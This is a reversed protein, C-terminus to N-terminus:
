GTPNERAIEPLLAGCRVCHLVLKQQQTFHLPVVFKEGCPCNIRLASRAGCSSCFTAVSGPKGCAVCRTNGTENCGVQRATTVAEELPIVLSAASDIFKALCSEWEPLLDENVEVSGAARRVMDVMQDHRKGLEKIPKRLRALAQIEPTGAAGGAAEQLMQAMCDAANGRDMIRDGEEVLRHAMASIRAKLGAVRETEFETRAATWKEFTVTVFGTVFVASALFIVDRFACLYVGSVVLGLTFLALPLMRTVAFRWNTFRAVHLVLFPLALVASLATGSSAPMDERFSIVSFIVFYLSYNLALLLFHSFHFRCLLGPKELEALYWVGLGFLMVALGMLQFLSVVRGMPSQASPIEILIPSTHGVRNMVWHLESGSRSTPQLATDPIVIEGEGMATVSVSLSALQEARPLWIAFRDRGLATYSFDVVAPVPPLVLDISTGIKYTTNEQSNPFGPATMRVRVDRLDARGMPVPIQFFTSGSAESTSHLEARGSARVETRTFIDMGVREFRYIVQFDAKYDDIMPALGIPKPLDLPAEAIPEEKITRGRAVDRARLFNPVAVASLLGIIVVVIMLEILTFGRLQSKKRHNLNGKKSM